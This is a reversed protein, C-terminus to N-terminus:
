NCANSHLHTLIYTLSLPAHVVPLYLPCTALIPSRWRTSLPCPCRCRLASPCTIHTLPLCHTDVHSATVRVHLDAVSRCLYPGVGWASM